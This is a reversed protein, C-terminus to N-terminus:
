MICMRFKKNIQKNVESRIKFVKTLTFRGENNISLQETPESSSPDRNEHLYLQEDPTIQM